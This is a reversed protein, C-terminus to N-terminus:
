SEDPVARLTVLPLRWKNLQDNIRLCAEILLTKIPWCNTNHHNILRALQIREIGSLGALSIRAFPHKIDANIGGSVLWIEDWIGKCSNHMHFELNQTACPAKDKTLFAIEKILEFLYEIKSSSPNM